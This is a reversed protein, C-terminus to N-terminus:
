FVVPICATDESQLTACFRRADNIDAFGTARLRFFQRGGSTAEQVLRSKGDFYEEFQGTIRTWEKRATDASDYAGLQVLHTGAPVSTVEAVVPVAPTADNAVALSATRITNSLNGRGSPRPAPLYSRTVGPVSAAIRDTRAETTFAPEVDASLSDALALIEATTSPRVTDQSTVTTGGLALEARPTIAPASVSVATGDAIMPSDADIVDIIAPAL